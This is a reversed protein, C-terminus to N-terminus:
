LGLGLLVGSIRPQLEVPVWAKGPEGVSGFVLGCARLRDVPTQEPLPAGGVVLVLPSPKSLAELEAEDIEGRVLEFLLRQAPTELTALLIALLHDDRLTEEISETFYSRRAINDLGDFPAVGLRRGLDFLASDELARLGARLSRLADPAQESVSTSHEEPAHHPRLLPEHLEHEEIRIILEFARVEARQAGTLGDDIWAEITLLGRVAEQVDAFEGRGDILYRATVSDFHALRSVVDSQWRTVSHGAAQMARLLRALDRRAGRIDIELSNAEASAQGGSLVRLRPRQDTDAVLSFM